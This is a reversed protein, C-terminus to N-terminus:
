STKLTFYKTFLPDTLFSSSTAQDILIHLLIFKLLSPFRHILLSGIAFINRSEM